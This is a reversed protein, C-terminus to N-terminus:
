KIRFQDRVLFSSILLGLHLFFVLLLIIFQWPFGIASSTWKSLESFSFFVLPFLFIVPVGSLIFSAKWATSNMRWFGIGVFITLFGVGLLLATFIVLLFSVSLYAGRLGSETETLASFLNPATVFLFLLFASLFYISGLVFWFGGNFRIGLSLSDLDDTNM